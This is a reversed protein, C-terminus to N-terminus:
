YKEGVELLLPDIIQMFDKQELIFINTICKQVSGLANKYNELKKAKLANLFKLMFCKLSIAQKKRLRASYDEADPLCGGHKSYKELYFFARWAIQIEVEFSYVEECAM